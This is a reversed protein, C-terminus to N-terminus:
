TRTSRARATGTLSGQVTSAATAVAVCDSRIPVITVGTARRRGHTRARWTVM